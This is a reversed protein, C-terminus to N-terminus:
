KRTVGTALLILGEKRQDQGEIEVAREDKKQRSQIDHLEAHM